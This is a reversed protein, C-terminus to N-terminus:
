VTNSDLASAGQQQQQQHHVDWKRRAILKLDEKDLTGSGDADLKRFLSRIENITKKEVRSMAVLMFALFESEEVKGDGNDDMAELDSYAMERRLFKKEAIRAERGLRSGAIMGLVQGIVAVSAPIFFVALLRMAPTSPSFDGYGITTTTIIGYYISAGFSWGEFWGILTALSFVLIVLPLVKRVITLTDRLTSMCGVEIDGADANISSVSTEDSKAVSSFIRVLRREARERRMDYVEQQQEVLWQGIIGLGAAIICIGYLAFFSTFAHSSPTTPRLDGYGVTTVTVVAFYLSDILSWGEFIFSYAVVAICLYILFYLMVEKFAYASHRYDQFIDAFSLPRVVVRGGDTSSIEDNISSHSEDQISGQVVRADEDDGENLLPSVLAGVTLAADDSGMGGDEEIDATHALKGSAGIADLAQRKRM